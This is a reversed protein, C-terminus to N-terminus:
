DQRLAVLPDVRMARRTPIYCALLTIATMLIAASVFTVPDAPSVGYLQSTLLRTIALASLLGLSIGILSFKAGEKMVLWLVDRRQAGLAIRIGIERTRRSVLFSLVGYIGVLGLILALGAFAVFLETTSAPTSVSESVVSRMPKVESAPVEPNLGAITRRLANQVQLEDLSSQVVVTMDSPVRGGELTANTAYPFYITGNIWDPLNNQLGYARVDSVIGVITRWDQDGSLRVHSGIPSRGPWFRRATSASVLAVPPDASDDASTFGRGAVVRIRMVPLYDPTIVNMWFLPMLAGPAVPKNEIELSRKAVRGDLPLTNVFAASDVGPVAELRDQLEHYFSICRAPDSCFAENPTIRATLLQESRFGPDVHSLAVFSRILLGAAIVLLVAFAVEAIALGSRLNQSVSGSAGRGASKLAEVLAVRSSHLAPALGFLLGTLIALGATFALVRWDIQADALRPTDAPLAVKLLQLGETALLMGFTGGLFALLVSETLLQRIVRGREAGMATRLAIEKERTAARSLTLNAVNVCAILLILSVAGLLLFLRGRVDAVMGNRLAIVSVDANWDAPMAWPFLKPVRSQFMRIEARAQAMTAGPRLRGIIPMFDGAWYAITDRPDNDLPIWVQTKSSPFNFEAPMVGVVQRSVGELDISHGILSPDSNFHQEWLARSLIVYNDQGAQDEGPYFPRGLEPRAGLVNFFEASVLVGSLRLPDGRGTLNFEHGEFYAAVDVSKMQDRLAVFAGKPYTGTISVLDQPAAFPLPRLLIGNVLSFIATNAGIGLALTLVAVATFGPNKLLVRAGYRLDQILTEFIRGGRAERGEEKVREIGGFEIRARRMAEERSIGTGILDEAFAEMHFRLEADMESETRSRRFIARSWSRLSVWLMM